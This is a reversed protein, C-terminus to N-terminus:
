KSEPETGQETPEQLTGAQAQARLLNLKTIVATSPVNLTAGLAQEYETINNMLLAALVKAAERTMMIQLTEEIIPQDGEMGALEGFTISLDWVTQGVAMSNAYTRMFRDTRIRKQSATTTLTGAPLEFKPEAM